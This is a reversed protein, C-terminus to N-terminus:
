FSYNLRIRFGLNDSEIDGSDTEETATAQSVAFKISAGDIPLPHIYAIYYQNHTAETTNNDQEWNTLFGALSLTGEGLALDCYGSMTNTTKDDLDAGNADSGGITGSAYNIGLTVIGFTAKARAGYGTLSYDNKVADEDKATANLMEAGVAIEVPGFKSQIVPRAGVVNVETEETTDPDMDTDFGEYTDNKGYIFGLELGFADSPLVHLALQGPQDARGRALKAEYREVGTPADVILVDNSKDHLSWGEFRGIQVDFTSTGIKGWVDDTALTSDTKALIEAKVEMFLNGAEQRVSPVVKIRGGLDYITKEEDATAADTDKEDNTTEYTTDIELDGSLSVEAQVPSILISIAFISAIVVGIIQLSKMLLEEKPKLTAFFVM